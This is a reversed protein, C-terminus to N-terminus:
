NQLLASPFMVFPVTYSRRLGYLLKFIIMQKCDSFAATTELGNLPVLSDKNHQQSTSIVKLPVSNWVTCGTHVPMARLISSYPKCLLIWGGASVTISSFSMFSLTRAMNETNPIHGRHEHKM